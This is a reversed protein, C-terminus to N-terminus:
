LKETDKTRIGSRSFRALERRIRYQKVFSYEYGVTDIMRFPLQENQYIGIETTTIGAGEPAQSSGLIANILTSKGCGSAGALLVNIKDDKLAQIEEYRTQKKKKTM